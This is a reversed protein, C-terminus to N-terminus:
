AATEVPVTATVRTGKGPATEIELTGGISEARERMIELGVHQSKQAPVAAPDWGRGDDEIIVKMSCNQRRLRVWARSAKAHKRVNTLAEQIIRVLQAESAVSLRSPLDDSAEIEVLIGNRASFDHLLETLKPVLGLSGSVMTRLGFISQRVEDYASGTITMMEGLAQAVRPSDGSSVLVQSQKLKLHLLSISQALGDHMERALREREENTALGRTGEYLRANEIAIAAQTALNGLLEVEEATFRRGERSSVCLAGILDNGRRLHSTLHARVYEPRMVPCKTPCDRQGAPCVVKLHLAGERALFAEDPGHTSRVEMEDRGPSALCIAAVEINLLERAKAVVLRLVADLEHLSLIDTGIQYLAQTERVKQELLGHTLRLQGEREQLRDAMVNFSYSLQGVEDRSTVPVRDGLRGDAIAMTAGAMRVLPTAIRRHFILSALFVLLGGIALFSLYLMVSLGVLEESKQSLRVVHDHHYRDLEQTTQGGRNLISLLQELEAPSLRRGQGNPAAVQDSLSGLEAEIRSLDDLRSKEWAQDAATEQYRRLAGFAQISQALERQLDRVHDLRNFRGSAQMHQIEFVVRHFRAYIDDIALAHTHEQVATTNIQHIQTVLFLSTGGACLMTIVIAALVLGVRRGLRVPFKAPLLIPQDGM